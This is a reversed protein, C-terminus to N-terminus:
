NGGSEELQLIQAVATVSVKPGLYCGTWTGYRCRCSLVGATPSLLM